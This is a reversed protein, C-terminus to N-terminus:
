ASKKNNRLKFLVMKRKTARESWCLRFSVVRNQVTFKFLDLFHHTLMTPLISLFHIQFFYVGVNPNDCAVMAGYSVQNCFCYTPENPDVPLDLDMGTPKATTQAETAAATVL